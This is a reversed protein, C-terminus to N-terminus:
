KLIFEKLEKVLKIFEIDDETFKITEIIPKNSSDREPIRRNNYGSKYKYVVEGLSIPSNNTPCMGNDKDYFTWTIGDTLIIKSNKKAQLYQSIEDLTRKKYKEPLFGTICDLFPSKIEVVGRYNVEVEKNNWYWKDSICLDPTGMKRKNNVIISGCYKEYDHIKTSIKVDVPEIDLETFVTQLFPRIINDQFVRERIDHTEIQREVLKIYEKYNM